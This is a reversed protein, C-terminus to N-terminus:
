QRGRACLEVDELRDLVGERDGFGKKRGVGGGAFGLRAPAWCAIKALVLQDVPDLTVVGRRVLGQQVAGIDVPHAHV